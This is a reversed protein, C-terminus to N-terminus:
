GTRGRRPLIELDLPRSAHLRGGGLDLVLRRGSFAEMGVLAAPFGPLPVDAYIPTDVERYIQDGITITRSRVIRSDISGGLVISAGRQSPRGDLLGASEAAERSLALLASAGTDVVAQITAGEVTVETTLAGRAKSVPIPAVDAPLVHGARPLFRM